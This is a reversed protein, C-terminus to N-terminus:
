QNRTSKLQRFFQIGLTLWQILNSMIRRNTTKVSVEYLMIFRIRILADVAHLYLMGGRALSLNCMIRKEADGGHYTNLNSRDTKVINQFKIMQEDIHYM